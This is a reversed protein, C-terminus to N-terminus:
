KSKKIYNFIRTIRLARIFTTSAGFDFKLVISVISSSISAIVIVFDFLNGWDKFYGKVGYAIMKAIAEIAFVGAFSYNIYDLLDDVYVPQSYWNITLVLTNMIICLLIMIDFQRSRVLKYCFRRIGSLSNKEVAKPIIQICQQKMELWERQLPTLLNGKGLIEKEKKFTSIVVGVFLNLILFNGLIIFIMFFLAWYVTNNKIPQYDVSVSDIGRNM